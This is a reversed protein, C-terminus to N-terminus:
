LQSYIRMTRKLRKGRFFSLCYKLFLLQTIWFSSRVCFREQIIENIRQAIQFYVKRAYHPITYPHDASSSILERVDCIVVHPMKKVADQLCQNMARHHKGCDEESNRPHGTESGNLIILLKDTNINSCMWLMNKKFSDVDLPGLFTFNDKFWRLFEKGLRQKQSCHTHYDWTSLDTLNSRCYGLPIVFDTNRYRYLGKTYDDLVSYIHIHYNSSFFNTRFASRDYFPLKDIIAGYNKITSQTCRKLLETHACDTRFGKESVYAVEADLHACHVLYSQIHLVDCSGKLMINLANKNKQHDM